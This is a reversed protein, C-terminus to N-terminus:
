STTSTQSALPTRAWVSMCTHSLEVWESVRETVWVTARECSPRRQRSRLVLSAWGHGCSHLSLAGVGALWGLRYRARPGARSPGAINYVLRINGTTSVRLSPGLLGVRPSLVAAARTDFYAGICLAGACPSRSIRVLPRRTNIAGSHTFQVCAPHIRMQMMCRWRYFVTWAVDSDMRAVLWHHLGRPCTMPRSSGRPCNRYDKAKAEHM